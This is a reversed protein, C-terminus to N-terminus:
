HRRQQGEHYIAAGIAAGLIALATVGVTAFLSFMADGVAEAAGPPYDSSNSTRDLSVSAILLTLLWTPIVICASVAGAFIYIALKVSRDIAAAIAGIGVGIAGGVKASYIWMDLLLKGGGDVAVLIVGILTILGLLLSIARQFQM